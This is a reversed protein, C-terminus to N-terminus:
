VSKQLIRSTWHNTSATWHSTQTTNLSFGGVGNYIIIDEQFYFTNYKQKIVLAHTVVCIDDTM